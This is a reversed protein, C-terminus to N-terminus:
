LIGHAENFSNARGVIPGNPMLVNHQGPGSQKMILENKYLARKRRGGMRIQLAVAM